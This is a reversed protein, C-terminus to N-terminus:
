TKEDLSTNSNEKFDEGHPAFTRIDFERGIMLIRQSYRGGMPGDLMTKCFAGSQSGFEEM